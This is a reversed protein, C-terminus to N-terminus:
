RPGRPPQCGPVQALVVAGARVELPGVSVGAADTRLGPLEGIVQGAEDLLRGGRGGACPLSLQLRVRRDDTAQGDGRAGSTTAAGRPHTPIWAVVLASGDPLLFGHVERPVDSQDSSVKMGALARHGAGFLRALAALAAFAPKPRHDNFAVGLHRNNDDGIQTAGARPDKLEYWAILQVEPSALALTVTRTLAVAAFPLTHEYAYDARVYPSVLAGRRHNSYGVEALWIPRGGIARAAGAVETLYGPLRELPEGNWTEYYAHVNIVDIAAGVGPQAFLERLFDVRGALGGSVVQARPNGRRVGAAGERLLSAYAAVSGRWYDANDPENWLEWSAIRGRYRQALREMLAGFARQDRPAQHWSDEPQGEVNWAPTYAVYPILRIGRESARAVFDDWFAFDYHGRQPEVGDWGISVRLVSTGARALLALDQEVEARSRTEEPYDECLGLPVQRWPQGTAIAARDAGVNVAPARCAVPTALALVLAFRAAWSCGRGPRRPLDGLRSAVGAGRKGM